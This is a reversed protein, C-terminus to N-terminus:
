MTYSSKSQLGGQKQSVVPPASSCLLGQTDTHPKKAWSWVDLYADPSHDLPPSPCWPARRRGSYLSPFVPSCLPGAGKWVWLQSHIGWVCWCVWEREWQLWLLLIHSTLKLRAREDVMVRWQESFEWIGLQWKHSYYSIISASIDNAKMHVLPFGCDRSHSIQNTSAM